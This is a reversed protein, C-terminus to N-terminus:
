EDDVADSRSPALEDLQEVADHPHLGVEVQGLAAVWDADRGALHALVGVRVFRPRGRNRACTRPPTSHKGDATDDADTVSSDSSTSGGSGHCPRCGFYSFSTIRSEFWKKRSVLSGEPWGIATCSPRSGGSIGSARPGVYRLRIPKRSAEYRSLSSIRVFGFRERHRKEDSSRGTSSGSRWRTM